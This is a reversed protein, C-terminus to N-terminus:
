FVGGPALVYTFQAKDQAIDPEISLITFTGTVTYGGVPTRTFSVSDGIDASLVFPWAEPNLAADVTVKSVRPAPYAFATLLTNAASPVATTDDAASYITRTYIRPYYKGRSVADRARYSAQDVNRTIAIDNFLYSIDENIEVDDMYPVQFGAPSLRPHDFYLQTGTAPNPTVTPGPNALAATAPVTIPTFNIFVPTMPPCNTVASSATSIYGSGATFFDVSLTVTCGQPSMVWCSFGLPQGPTVSIQDGRVYAQSPTGTVTLLASHKGDYSWGSSQAVTCSSVSTWPGLGGEFTQWKNLAYDMDGMALGLPFNTINTRQRFGLTGDALIILFGNETNAIDQMTVSAQAGSDIGTSGGATSFNGISGTLGNNGYGGTLYNFAQQKSLGSDVAQPANWRAWSLIRQIRIGGLEDLFGTAGSTFWSQIRELDVVRDYNGALAMTGTFLGAASATTATVDGGHQLMVPSGAPFTGTLSGISSGDIYVTILGATSITVTWLHFNGDFLFSAPTFSTSGATQTVTVHTGDYSLTLYNKSGATGNLDTLCMIVASTNSAVFYMQAWVSYTAGTSTLPLTVDNSDVLATGSFFTSTTQGGTNGWFSDTTGALGAPYVSTNSNGFGTTPTTPTPPTPPTSASKSSSSTNFLFGFPLLSVPFSKGFLTVNLQNAPSTGATGSQTATPVLTAGSRGSWNSAVTSGQQENLPWLNVPKDYLMEQIMTTPLLTQAMKSFDDTAAMATVTRQFDYTQPLSTAIGRWVTYTRGQWTALLQIPTILTVSPYYPSAPNGPSLAGDFNDLTLKIDAASLEDLEFSRGRPGSLGRFRSTIDTWTPPVTPEQPTYGFAAQVSIVPWAPNANVPLGGAKRVAVMGGSYYGSAATDTMSPSASGTTSAWSAAQTIGGTSSGNIGAWPLATWSPGGGAQTITNPTGSFAGATFIFDPQATSLSMTFGTAPGGSFGNSADVVYGAQLGTVDIVCVTLWRVFASTSVYVTNAARANPVIFIQTNATGNPTFTAQKYVNHVNDACYAIGNDEGDLWSVSVFIWDHEVTAVPVELTGYFYEQAAGTWGATVFGSGTFNENIVISISPSTATNGFSDAVTLTFTSLGATTPTGSIIGTSASLSLGAPLSGSAVTWGFGGWGGSAALTYSYATGVLGPQPTIATFALNAPTYAYWIGAYFNAAANAAEAQTWTLGHTDSLAVSAVGSGGQMSVLALILKGGLPPVFAATTATTSGANNVVAPSSADTTITGGYPMVELAAVGGNAPKTSSGATFPTNATLTATSVFSGHGGTSDIATNSTAAAPTTAATAVVASYALSGTAEPTIAVDAAQTSSATQNEVNVPTPLGANDLVEVRLLIGNASSGGGTATVKLSSLSPTVAFAGISVFAAPLGVGNLTNWTIVVQGAAGATAPHTANDGPGGAGSGPAIGANGVQAPTGGNAGTAGALSPPGAAGSGASGGAANGASAGNAGTGGSGTSGASGGGGGGGRSAVSIGTGGNGGSFAVTNAGAAGGAGAAAGSGNTGHAGTVTVSGGTVTTDTSSGGGGITFSLVSGVHLGGLTPEGGLAGGGGGAGSHTASISSGSNGGEGTAYVGISTPDATLPVTWTGSSSFIQYPL